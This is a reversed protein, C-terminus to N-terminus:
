RMRKGAVEILKQLVVFIVPPALNTAGALMRGDTLGIFFLMADFSQPHVYM